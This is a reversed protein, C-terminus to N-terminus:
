SNGDCDRIADARTGDAVNRALGGDLGKEAIIVARRIRPRDFGSSIPNQSGGIRPQVRLRSAGGHGVVPVLAIYAGEAANDQFGSGRMDEVDPITADEANGSLRELLQGFVM